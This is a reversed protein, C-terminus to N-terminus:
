PLIKWIKPLAVVEYKWESIEQGKTTNGFPGIWINLFIFNLQNHFQFEVLSYEQFFPRYVWCFDSIWLSSILFFLILHRIIVWGLFIFAKVSRKTVRGNDLINKKESKNFTAKKLFHSENKLDRFFINWIVIRFKFNSIKKQSKSIQFVFRVKQFFASKAMCSKSNLIWPGM